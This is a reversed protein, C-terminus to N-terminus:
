YLSEALRLNDIEDRAVVSHENREDWCVLKGEVNAEVAQWSGQSGILCVSHLM